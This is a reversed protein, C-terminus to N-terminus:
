EQKRRKPGCYMHRKIDISRNEPPKQRVMEKGGELAGDHFTGMGGLESDEGDDEEEGEGRYGDEEDKLGKGDGDVLPRTGDVVESLKCAVEM